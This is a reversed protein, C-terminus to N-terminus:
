DEIKLKPKANPPECPLKSPLQFTLPVLCIPLNSLLYLASTSCIVPPSIGSTLEVENTSQACYLLPFHLGSEFHILM